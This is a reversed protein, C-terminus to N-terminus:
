LVFTHTLEDIFPPEDEDSKWQLVTGVWLSAWGGTMGQGTTDRLQLQYTHGREAHFTYSELAPALTNGTSVVALVETTDLNRLEWGTQNAYTTYFVDVTIEVTAVVTSDAAIDEQRQQRIDKVLFENTITFYHGYFTSHRTRVQVVRTTRRRPSWLTITAGM